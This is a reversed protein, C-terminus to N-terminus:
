LEEKYKVEYDTRDFEWFMCDRTLRADEYDVAHYTKEADLKGNVFVCVQWEELTRDHRLELMIVPKM